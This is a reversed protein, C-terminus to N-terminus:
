DGDEAYARALEKEVTQETINVYRKFSKWDRHRHGTIKMVEPRLGRELSLIVFTRGGTHCGLREWNAFTTTERKSARYRIVEILTDLGALKGLEKLYENM